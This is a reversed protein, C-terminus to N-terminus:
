QAHHWAVRGNLDCKGVASDNWPPRPAIARNGLKALVRGVIGVGKNADVILQLLQCSIELREKELRRGLNIRLANSPPTIQEADSPTESIDGVSFNGLQNRKQGSTQTLKEIVVVFRFGDLRHKKGVVHVAFMSPRVLRARCDPQKEMQEAASFVFQLAEIAM